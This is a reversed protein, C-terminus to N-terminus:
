IATCNLALTFTNDGTSMTPSTIKYKKANKWYAKGADASNMTLSSESFKVANLNIYGSTLGSATTDDDFTVTLSNTTSAGVTVVPTMKQESPLDKLSWVVDPTSDDGFSPPNILTLYRENPDLDIEINLVTDTTSNHEADTIRLTVAQSGLNAMNLNEGANWELRQQTWMDSPYINQTLYTTGGHIIKALADNSDSTNWDKGRLDFTIVVKGTDKYYGIVENKTDVDGPNSSGGAGTNYNYSYAM